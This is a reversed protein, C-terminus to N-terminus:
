QKEHARDHDAAVSRAAEDQQAFKWRANPMHNTAGHQWETPHAAPRGSLKQDIADPFIMSDLERMDKALDRGAPKLDAACLTKKFIEVVHSVNTPWAGLAPNKALAAPGHVMFGTAASARDALHSTLVTRPDANM